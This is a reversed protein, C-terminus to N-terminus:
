TTQSGSAFKLLLESSFRHDPALTRGQPSRSNQDAYLDNLHSALNLRSALISFKVHGLFGRFAPDGSGYDDLGLAFCSTALLPLKSSRRARTVLRAAIGACHYWSPDELTLSPPFSAWPASLWPLTGNQSPETSFLWMKADKVTQRDSNGEYM